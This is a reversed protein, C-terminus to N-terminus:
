KRKELFFHIIYPTGELRQSCNTVNWTNKLVRWGWILFGRLTFTVAIIIIIVLIIITIKEANGSFCCVWLLSFTLVLLIYFSIQITLFWTWVFVFCDCMCWFAYSGEHLHVYSLRSGLLPKKHCGLRVDDDRLYMMLNDSKGLLSFLFCKLYRSCM